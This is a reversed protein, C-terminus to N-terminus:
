WSGLVEFYSIKLSINLCFPRRQFEQTTTFHHEPSGFSPICVNQTLSFPPTQRCFEGFIETIRSNLSIWIVKIVSKTTLFSFDLYRIGGEESFGDGGKEESMKVGPGSTTFAADLGDGFADIRSDSKDFQLRKDGGGSDTPSNVGGGGPKHWGNGTEVNGNVSDDGGNGGRISIDMGM